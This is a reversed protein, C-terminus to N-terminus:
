EKNNRVLRVKLPLGSLTSGMIQTTYMDTGEGSNKVLNFMAYVSFM